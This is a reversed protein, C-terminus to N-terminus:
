YSKNINNKDPSVDFRGQEASIDIKESLSLLYLPTFLVEKLQVYANRMRAQYADIDKHPIWPVMLVEKIIHYLDGIRFTEWSRFFKSDTNVKIDIMHDEMDWVYDMFSEFNIDFFKHLIDNQKGNLENDVYSNFFFNLDMTEYDIEDVERNPYEERQCKSFDKMNYLTMRLFADFTLESDKFDFYDGFRLNIYDDYFDRIATYMRSSVLSKMPTSFLKSLISDIEVYETIGHIRKDKVNELRAELPLTNLTMNNEINLQKNLDSHM